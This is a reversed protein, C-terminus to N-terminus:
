AEEIEILDIDRLDISGGSLDTIRGVVTVVTGKALPVFPGVNWRALMAHVTVDEDTLLYVFAALGLVSVDVISGKVRIRKGIYHKAFSDAHIGTRGEFLGILQKPTRNALGQGGRIWEKRWAFFAAIMFTLGVILWNVSPIAPKRSVTELLWLLAIISGGTLLPQWEKWLARVFEFFDRLMACVEVVRLNPM